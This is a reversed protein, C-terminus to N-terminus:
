KWQCGCCCDLEYVLAGVGAFELVGECGLQLVHLGIGESGGLVGGVSGACKGVFGAAGSCDV